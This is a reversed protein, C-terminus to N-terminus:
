GTLALRAQARVEVADLLQEAPVPRSFLYGQGYQCGLSQLIALQSAEEVGEAVGAMGLNAILTLTAHIVALVDQNNTLDKLFTRDIKITDFPYERLCGLSSTGTGFDDM